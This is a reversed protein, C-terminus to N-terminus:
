AKASLDHLCAEDVMSQTCHQSEAPSKEKRETAVWTPVRASVVSGMSSISISSGRCPDSEHTYMAVGDGKRKLLSGESLAGQGEVM